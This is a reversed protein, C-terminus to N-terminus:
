PLKTVVKVGIGFMAPTNPEIVNHSMIRKVGSMAHAAAVFEHGAGAPLNGKHAGGIIM